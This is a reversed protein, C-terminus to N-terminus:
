RRRFHPHEGVANKSRALSRMKVLQNGTLKWYPLRVTSTRGEKLRRERGAALLQSVIGSLPAVFGTSRSMSKDENLIM